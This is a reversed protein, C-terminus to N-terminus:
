ANGDDLSSEATYAELGLRSPAGVSAGAKMVFPELAQLKRGHDFQQTGGLSM